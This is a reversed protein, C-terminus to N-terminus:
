LCDIKAGTTFFGAEQAALAALTGSWCKRCVQPRRKGEPRITFRASLFLTNGGEKKGRVVLVKENPEGMQVNGACFFKSESRQNCIDCVFKHTRNKLKM